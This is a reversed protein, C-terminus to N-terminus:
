PIVTFGQEKFHEDFTFVTQLGNRRMTEFSSCDVLSLNRRNAALLIELAANHQEEDLWEFEIGPLFDEKLIRIAQLGLRNQILAISETLVYNTTFFTEDSAILDAWCKKARANFLDRFDILALFASTDIFIM